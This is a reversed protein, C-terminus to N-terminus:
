GCKRQRISGTNPSHWIHNGPRSETADRYPCAITSYFREIMGVLFERAENLLSTDQPYRIHFWACIADFTLTGSYGAEKELEEGKGSSGASPPGKREAKKSLVSENAEMVMEITIRKRFLVLTNADFPSQEQYGPLGIFYQLYPNEAIQEVLEKDSYQFKTQIIPTSLAPWACPSRWM